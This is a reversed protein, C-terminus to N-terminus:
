KARILYWVLHIFNLSDSQLQVVGQEFALEKVLGKLWLAEKSAKTNEMDVAETTSLAVTSQMVLKWSILGGGFMFAYSTMSRKNDLDGVSDVDVYGMVKSSALSRDFLLGHNVTGALYRFTWKM